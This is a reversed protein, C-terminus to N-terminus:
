QGAPFALGPALREKKKNRDHGIKETERLSHIFGCMPRAFIMLFAFDRSGTKLSCYQLSPSSVDLKKTDRGAM